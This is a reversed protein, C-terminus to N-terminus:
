ELSKRLKLFEPYLFAQLLPDGAGEPLPWLAALKRAEERNGTKFLAAAYLTRVLGDQAPSTREWVPRLASPDAPLNQAGRWVALQKRALDAVQPPNNGALLGELRRAAQDPRGTAYLWVSQRWPLASDQVRARFEAYRGFLADGGALDGGLWRAYAAKLLDGGGLMGPNKEHAALFQKEAEAFRGHLFLAEGMSDLANAEQGPQRGYNEFAVRAANLDGALAEAYGLLNLAQLDGPAMRVVERFAQASEAFRRGNFRVEALSHLVQPDSPLLAALAALAKEREAANQQITAALAQLQARDIPSRLGPRELAQSAAELARSPQGGALLAQTRSVWAASFDPDLTVAREFDGQGWAAAAEGNATSFPQAGARIAKALRDIAGLLEGDASTIVAMKHTAADELSMEFHLRTGVDVAARRDFYGHVLRTAGVAYADTIAEARVAHVGAV